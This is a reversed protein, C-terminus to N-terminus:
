FTKTFGNKREDRMKSFNLQVQKKQKHKEKEKGPLCPLPLTTLSVQCIIVMPSNPLNM